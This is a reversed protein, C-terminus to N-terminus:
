PAPSTATSAKIPPLGWRVSLRLCVGALSTSNTKESAHGSGSIDRTPPTRRTPRSSRSSTANWIRCGEGGRRVCYVAFAVHRYELGAIEESTPVENLAAL